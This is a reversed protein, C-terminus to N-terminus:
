CTHGLLSIAKVLVPMPASATASSECLKAGLSEVPVRCAAQRNDGGLGTPQWRARLSAFDSRRLMVHGAGGEISDTYTRVTAPRCRSQRDCSPPSECAEINISFHCHMHAMRYPLIGGYNNVAFACAVECSRRLHSASSKKCIYFASASRRSIVYILSM